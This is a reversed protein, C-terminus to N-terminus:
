RGSRPKSDAAYSVSREKKEGSQRLLDALQEYVFTLHSNMSLARRLHAVAEPRRGLDALQCGVNGVYVATTCDADAAARFMALAEEKHGMVDLLLGKLNLLEGVHGEDTLLDDVCELAESLAGARRLLNAERIRASLTVTRGAEVTTRMLRRHEQLRGEAPLLARTTWPDDLSDAQSFTGEDGFRFWWTLTKDHSVNLKIRVPTGGPTGAPLPVKVTTSTRREEAPGTYVPVLLEPLNSDPVALEHDVEVLVDEDPYPVSQGARLLERTSGDALRIGLPESAIPRIIEIGRAGRWYAALAAGRAVSALPDPTTRVEVNSFLTKQRALAKRLMADVYPNLSSGGHLVVVDLDGPRLRARLLTEIVPRLLSQSEEDEDDPLALFPEMVEEFEAATM